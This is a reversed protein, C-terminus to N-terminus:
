LGLFFINSDRYLFFIGFESFNFLKSLKVVIFGFKFGFRQSGFGYRRVWELVRVFGKCFYYIGIISDFQRNEIELWKIRESELCFKIKQDRFWILCLEERNYEWLENIKKIM